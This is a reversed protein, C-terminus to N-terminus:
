SFMEKVARFREQRTKCPLARGAAIEAEWTTEGRRVRVRIRQLCAIYLGRSHAVRKCGCLCAISM